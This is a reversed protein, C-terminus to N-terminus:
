FGYLYGVYYVFERKYNVKYNTTDIYRQSLMPIKVGLEM